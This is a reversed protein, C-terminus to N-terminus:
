CAKQVNKGKDTPIIKLKGNFHKTKLKSGYFLKDLMVALAGVESHPQNTVAVNFDALEFIESPVKEAGVVILLDKGHLRPLVDEIPRGYMTLHAVSGGNSRWDNIAKRWSEGSRVFFPGGWLETVKNVSREVGADKTTLIIGDAGFARAV